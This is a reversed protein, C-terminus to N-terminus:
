KTSTMLTPLDALTWLYYEGEYELNWSASFLRDSGLEQLELYLVNDAESIGLLRVAAIYSGQTYLYPMGVVLLHEQTLIFPRDLCIADPAIHVPTRTM